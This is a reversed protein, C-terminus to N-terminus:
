RGRPDPPTRGDCTWLAHLSACMAPPLLLRVVLRALPRGITMGVALQLWLLATTLAAAPAGLLSIAADRPWAPAHGRAVITAAAFASGTGVLVLSWALLSWRGRWLLLCSWAAGIAVVPLAFLVHIRLNRLRLGGLQERLAAPDQQRFWNAFSGPAGEAFADDHLRNLDRGAGEVLQESGALTMGFLMAATGLWAGILLLLWLAVLLGVVKPGIRGAAPQATVADYTGCEPCQVVLLGHHPERVVPRGILNYGCALCVRDGTILPPGAPPASRDRRDIPDPTKM